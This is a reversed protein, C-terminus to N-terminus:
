SSTSKEAKSCINLVKEETLVDHKKSKKKTKPELVLTGNKWVAVFDKIKAM